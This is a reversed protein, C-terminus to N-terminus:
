MRVLGGVAVPQGAREISHRAAIGILSALAGARLDARLGLPDAAPENRFLLDQLSGDAGGHGGEREPPLDTIVESRGFQRTLRVERRAYGGGAMDVYELRGRTGNLSISQGELPLYTAATYTLLARSAYRVTVSM